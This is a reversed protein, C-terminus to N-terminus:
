ILKPKHFHIGKSSNKSMGRIFLYFAGGFIKDYDFNEVTNKLFKQLAKAYIEAQLYYNHETMAKDMNEKTYDDENKGLFNSKYDLIYFKGNYFFMLDIFGHLYGEKNITDKKYSKIKKFSEQDSLHMIFEMEISQQSVDIDALCFSEPYLNVNTINILDDNLKAM